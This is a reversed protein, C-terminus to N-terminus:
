VYKGKCPFSVGDADNSNSFNLHNADESYSMDFQLSFNVICHDSLINPNDVVFKSFFKFLDPETIVYDILSSGRAGVYTCKGVGADEAIRGNVVRLGTTRCFDLLSQGNANFGTDQTARPM